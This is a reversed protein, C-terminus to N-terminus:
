REPDEPPRLRARFPRTQDALGARAGRPVNVAILVLHKAPQFAFAEGVAGPDDHPVFREDGWYWFVRQWPFRDRFTESALLGYLAKPTSGGSLAIRFPGQTALALATM